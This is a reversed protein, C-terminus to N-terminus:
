QLSKCSVNESDDVIRELTTFVLNNDVLFKLFGEMSPHWTDPTEQNEKSTTTTLKDNRLRMAVFRM